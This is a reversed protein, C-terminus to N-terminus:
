IAGKLMEMAPGSKGTMFLKAVRLGRFFGSRATLSLMAFYLLIGASIAALLRIVVALETPLTMQLWYIGAGMVLASILVSWGALVQNSIPYKIAIYVAWGSLGWSVFKQATLALMVWELNLTSALPITILLLVVSFCSVKLLLGPRGVGKLVGGNFSATPLRLGMLLSLQIATVAGTWQEGFVFPIALPAIAAAGIFAPYAIFGAIWIAATMTRFLAPRDDQTRSAVPFAIAGFPSVLAQMAQDQVRMALNFMGLAAPGLVLGVFFRPIALESVAIMRLGLSALNFRVLGHFDELTTRFSPTWRAFVAFFVLRVLRRSLEMAVLAWANKFILASSIGVVAGVVYGIVDVTAVQRFQMNRQLLAAPVATLAGIFLVISMVRLYMELEPTNFLGAIPGAFVQIISFFLGAFMLSSLLVSAEHERRLEGRQILVENLSDSTFIEPVVLVLLLYGYIGFDAPTLLRAVFVLSALGSILGLWKSIAVWAASRGASSLTSPMGTMPVPEPTHSNTTM